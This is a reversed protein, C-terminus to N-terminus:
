KGDPEVKEMYLLLNMIGRGRHKTSKDWFKGTTPYFDIITNKHPIMYHYENNHSSFEIEFDKLIKTSERQNYAKKEQRSIKYSEWYESSGPVLYGDDEKKM